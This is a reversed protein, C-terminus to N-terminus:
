PAANEASKDLHPMKAYGLGGETALPRTTLKQGLKIMPAEIFSYTVASMAITVSVVALVYVPVPWGHFISGGPQRSVVWIILYLAVPHLLYISYSIKGLWAIPGWTVRAFTVGGVFVITALACSFSLQSEQITLHGRSVFIFAAVAPVVVGTSIALIKLLWSGLWSITGDLYLRWLGGAFMFGLFTLTSSGLARIAIEDSTALQYFVQSGVAGLVITIIVGERHLKGLLFLLLCLGYFYLEVRLTWYPPMVNRAGFLEQVMTLNLAIEWSPLSLEQLWWMSILGLPISFWYLPFLRFFRRIVFSRTGRGIDGRLSSPILVGSILFFILVGTRGFDMHYSIERAFSGQPDAFIEATHAYVVLLAAVARLSDIHAFHSRSASM